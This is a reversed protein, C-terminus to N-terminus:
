LLPLAKIFIDTSNKYGECLTDLMYSVSNKSGVHEKGWIYGRQYCPIQITKGDIDQGLTIKNASMPQKNYQFNNVSIAYVYYLLAKGDVFKIFATFFLQGNVFLLFLFRVM